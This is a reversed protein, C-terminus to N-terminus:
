SQLKSIAFITQEVIRPKVQAMNAEPFSLANVTNSINSFIKVLEQVSYAPRGATIIGYLTKSLNVLNKLSNSYQEGTTSPQQWVINFTINNSSLTLMYGNILNILSSFSAIIDPRTAFLNTNFKPLTRINIAQNTSIVPTNTTPTTNTTPAPTAPTAPAAQAFVKLRNIRASIKM